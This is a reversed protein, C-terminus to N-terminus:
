FYYTGLYIANSMKPYFINHVVSEILFQLYKIDLYTNQNFQDSSCDIIKLFYKIM